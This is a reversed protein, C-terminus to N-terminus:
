KVLFLKECLLKSGGEQFRKKEQSRPWWERRTKRKVKVQSKESERAPEKEGVLIETRSSRKLGTASWENTITLLNALSHWSTAAKADMKNPWTAQPATLSVSTGWALVLGLSCGVSDCTFKHKQHSKGLLGPSLCDGRGGLAAKKHAGSTLGTHLKGSDQEKPKFQRIQGWGPFRLASLGDAGTLAHAGTGDNQRWKAEVKGHTELCEIYEELAQSYYVERNWNRKRNTTSSLNVMWREKSWKFTLKVTM